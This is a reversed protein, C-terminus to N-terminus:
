KAQYSHASNVKFEHGLIKTFYTNKDETPKFKQFCSEAYLARLFHFGKNAIKSDLYRSLAKTISGNYKSNIAKNEMEESGFEERIDKLYKKATSVDILIPAVVFDIDSNKKKALNKYIAEDKKKSIELMKMLEIQRRGTAVALVILKQYALERNKRSSSVAKLSDIDEINKVLEKITTEAIKLYNSTDELHNLKDKIQETYKDNKAKHLLSPLKFCLVISDDENFGSAILCKRLQLSRNKITNYESDFWLFVSWKSFFLSQQKLSKAKKAEKIFNHEIDKWFKSGYLVILVEDRNM